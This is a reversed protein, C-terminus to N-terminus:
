LVRSQQAQVEHNDDTYLNLRARDTQANRIKLILKVVGLATLKCCAYWSYYVIEGATVAACYKDCLVKLSARGVLLVGGLKSLPWWKSYWLICPMSCLGQCPMYMYASVRGMWWCQSAEIEITRLEWRITIQCKMKKLFLAQMRCVCIVDITLPLRNSTIDIQSTSLQFGQAKRVTTNKLHPMSATVAHM